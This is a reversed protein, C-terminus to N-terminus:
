TKYGENTKKSWIPWSFIKKFTYKSKTFTFAAIKRDKEVLYSEWIEAASPLVWPIPMSLKTCIYVIINLYKSLEKVKPAVLGAVGKMYKVYIAIDYRLLKIYSNTYTYYKDKGTIDETIDPDSIIEKVLIPMGASYSDRRM